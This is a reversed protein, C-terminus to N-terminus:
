IPVKKNLNTSHDCPIILGQYALINHCVYESNIPQFLKLSVTHTSGAKGWLPRDLNNCVGSVSRYREARCQPVRFADPCYNNILTKTTDILPLGQSVSDRSLSFQHALIRSTEELVQGLEAAKEDLNENPGQHVLPGQRGLAASFAGSVSSYTICINRQASPLILACDNDGPILELLVIFHILVTEPRGLELM